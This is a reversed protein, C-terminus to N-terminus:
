PNELLWKLALAAVIGRLEAIIEPTADSAAAVSDHVGDDTWVRAVYRDSALRIEYRIPPLDSGRLCFSGRELHPVDRHM